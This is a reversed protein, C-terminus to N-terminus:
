AAVNDLVDKPWLARFQKHTLPETSEYHQGDIKAFATFRPYGDATHDFPEGVLFGVGAWVAPPLVDLVENYRAESVKKWKTM